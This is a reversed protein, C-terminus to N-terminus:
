FFESDMKISKLRTRKRVKNISTEAAAAFSKLSAPLRLNIVQSNGPLAEALSTLGKESLINSGSIYLVKLINNVRLADALSVVGSDTM